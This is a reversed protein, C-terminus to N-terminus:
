TLFDPFIALRYFNVHRIYFPDRAQLITSYSSYIASIGELFFIGSNRMYPISVSFFFSLHPLAACAWDYSETKGPLYNEEDGWLLIFLIPSM